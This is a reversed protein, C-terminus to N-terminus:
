LNKHVRGTNLGEATDREDQQQVPRLKSLNVRTYFVFTDSCFLSQSLRLRDTEKLGEHTLGGSCGILYWSKPCLRLGNEEGGDNGDTEKTKDQTHTDRQVINEEEATVTLLEQM